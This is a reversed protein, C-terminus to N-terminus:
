TVMLWRPGCEVCRALYGSDKLDRGGDGRAGLCYQNSGSAEKGSNRAWVPDRMQKTCNKDLLWFLGTSNYGGRM